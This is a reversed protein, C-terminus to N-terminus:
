HGKRLEHRVAQTKVAVQAFAIKHSKNMSGRVKQCYIGPCFVIRDFSKWSVVM